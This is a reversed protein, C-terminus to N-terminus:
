APIVEVVSSLKLVNNAQVTFPTLSLPCIDRALRSIAMAVPVSSTVPQSTDPIVSIDLRNSSINLPACVNM